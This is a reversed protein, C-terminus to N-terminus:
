GPVFLKGLNQSKFHSVFQAMDKEVVGYYKDLVVM